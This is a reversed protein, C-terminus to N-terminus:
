TKKFQMPDLLLLDKIMASQPDKKLEANLKELIQNKRLHIESKWIPHDVELWLVSREVKIPRAHKSVQAGVVDEWIRMANSESLRRSFVPYKERVKKLIDSLGDFSM